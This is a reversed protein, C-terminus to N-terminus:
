VLADVRGEVFCEDYVFTPIDLVVLILLRQEEALGIVHKTRQMISVPRIEAEHSTEDLLATRDRRGQLREFRDLIRTDHVARWVELAVLDEQLVEVVWLVHSNQIKACPLQDAEDFIAQLSFIPLPLALRM